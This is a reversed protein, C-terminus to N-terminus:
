ISSKNSIMFVRRAGPPTGPVPFLGVLGNAPIHQFLGILNHVGDVMLIHFVQLFFQSIHKQLHHEM